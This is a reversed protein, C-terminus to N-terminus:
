NGMLHEFKPVEFIEFNVKMREIRTATLTYGQLANDGNIIIKLPITGYKKFFLELPGSQVISFLSSDITIDNTYYFTWNSKGSLEEFVFTIKSCSKGLIIETEEDTIITPNSKLKTLDDKVGLYSGEIYSYQAGGEEQNYLMTSRGKNTITKYNGNSYYFVEKDDSDQFMMKFISDPFNTNNILEFSYHIKGEFDQSLCKVSLFLFSTYIFYKISVM